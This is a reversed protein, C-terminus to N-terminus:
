QETPNCSFHRRYWAEIIDASARWNTSLMMCHPADPLMHFDAHYFRATAEDQGEPHLTGLDRGAAICFAPVTFATPDIRIRLGYRDNLLAPSEPCLRDTFPAIDPAPEDGLFKHRCVADSPPDVLRETPMLPLPTLGPLQGPPSPALLGFGSFPTLEGAAAAVLAGASHGIALVARDLLACVAAVDEAMNHVGHLHLDTAQALGGHGRMDMAAAPIGLGDFHEVYRAFCWAGHYGGHVFLLIPRDSHAEAATGLFVRGQGAPQQPLRDIYSFDLPSPAM